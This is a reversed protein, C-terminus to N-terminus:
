LLSIKGQMATKWFSTPERDMSLMEEPTYVFIDVPVGLEFLDMFELARDPFPKATEQVIMVDIDLWSRATGTAVSGILYANLVNKGALKRILFEKIQELSFDVVSTSPRSKELINGTTM